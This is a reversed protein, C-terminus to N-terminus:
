FTYGVNARLSYPGDIGASMLVVEIPMLSTQVGLGIGGGQRIRGHDPVWTWGDGIVAANWLARVYWNPRVQRQLGLWVAQSTIGGLQQHSWGWLPRQRYEFFDFGFAGGLFFGYHLPADGFTHGLMLASIFSVEARLPWRGEWYLLHHSFNLGSGLAKTSFVSRAYVQHGSQPFYTRNFTDYHLLAAPGWLFADNAEEPREGILTRYGYVESTLGGSLLLDASPQWGILAQIELQQPELQLLRAGRDFLDLPYRLARARLRLTTLPRLVLPITYTATLHTAEGIRLGLNLTSGYHTPNVLLAHALFSTNYVGEHRLSLGLVGDNSEGFRLELDYVEPVGTPVLAYAVQRYPENSSVAEVLAEIDGLTMAEPFTMRLMSRLEQDQHREVGAFRVAQIQLAEESVHWPAPPTPRPGLRVALAELDAQLRRAATDGKRILADVRGFDSASFGSLSPEILVDCYKRQEQYSKVAALFLTQSLVDTLTAFDAGDELREGVNACVLVDAGLALADEAPLNRSIGGDVLLREGLRVPALFGPIAISARLADVLSGGEIRVAESTVLDTAVAAFPRPFQSFDDVNSAPFTLRILVQAVRNGSSFGRPLTPRLGELPVTVLFLDETTRRNLPRSLRSVGDSFLDAFDLVRVLSDLQAPTYGIAYLGGIVSGMSAGAVVDIPLGVEELVNLVGIHALGRAGGGSLVLGVTPRTGVPRDQAQATSSCLLLACGLLIPRLWRTVSSRDPPM